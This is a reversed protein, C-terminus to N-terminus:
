WENKEYKSSQRLHGLNDLYRHPDEIDWRSLNVFDVYWTINRSAFFRQSNNMIKVWFFLFFGLFSLFFSFLTAHFDALDQNPKRKVHKSRDKHIPGCPCSGLFFPRKTTSKLEQGTPSKRSQTQDGNEVDTQSDPITSTSPVRALRSCRRKEM